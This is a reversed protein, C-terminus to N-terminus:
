EKIDCKTCYKYSEFMGIYNKFEHECKVSIIHTPNLTFVECQIYRIFDEMHITDLEFGQLRPYNIRVSVYPADIGLVSYERGLLCTYIQGEKIKISTSM